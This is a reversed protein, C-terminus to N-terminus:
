QKKLHILNSMGIQEKEILGKRELGRINRSVSAKPIGLKKQIDTQTMPTNRQQLLSLIQKQRHNIGKIEVPPQATHQQIPQNKIKKDKLFFFLLLISVVIISSLLLLYVLPQQPVSEQTKELQYQIIISLPENEGFGKILLAGQNEEIRISGTSRLYNISSDKPLAVSFVFESFVEQKTINLLWNSRQKSTYQPTTTTLLDPHNTIGEITVFGSLDITITIDAYYPQANGTPMIVTTVLILLTM